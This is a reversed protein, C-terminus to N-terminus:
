RHPAHGKAIALHHEQHHMGFTMVGIFGLAKLKLRETRNAATVTMVAGDPHDAAVITMGGVGNMTAAHATVMRAISDRVPGAGTVVYRMGKEVPVAEVEARLTVNDMDILHSRLGDIDVNSWDTAPDAMFISVIEQIAAFASQGPESPGGSITFRFHADRMKGTMPSTQAQAMTSSALLAGFLLIRFMLLSGTSTMRADQRISVGYQMIGIM